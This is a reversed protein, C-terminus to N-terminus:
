LTTISTEYVLFRKGTLSGTGSSSSFEIVNTDQIADTKTPYLKITKDNIARIYYTNGDVLPSMPNDSNYVVSSGTTYGHSYFFVIDYLIGISGTSKSPNSLTQIFNMSDEYRLTPSGPRYVEVYAEKPQDYNNVEFTSTNDPVINFPETVFITSNAGITNSSVIRQQGQGTGGTITLIEGSINIPIDLSTSIEEAGGSVATSSVKYPYYTPILINVSTTLIREKYIWESPNSGSSATWKVWIDYEEINSVNIPTGQDCKYIVLEDWSLNLSDSGFKELSIDGLNQLSGKVYLFETDLLYIPSWYSSINRDETSIRFRVPIRNTYVDLQKFNDVPIKLKSTSEQPTSYIGEVM